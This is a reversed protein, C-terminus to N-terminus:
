PRDCFRSSATSGVGRRAHARATSELTEHPGREGEVKVHGDDRRCFFKSSIVRMCYMLTSLTVERWSCFIRMAMRPVLSIRMPLFVRTRRAMMLESFSVQCAYTGRGGVWGSLRTAQGGM